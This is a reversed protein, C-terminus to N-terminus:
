LNGPLPRITAIDFHVALIDVLSKLTLNEWADYLAATSDGPYELHVGYRGASQGLTYLYARVDAETAHCLYIARHHCATDSDIRFAADGLQAQLLLLLHRISQDKELSWINM